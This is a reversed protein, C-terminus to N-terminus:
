RGRHKEKRKTQKLLFQKEKRADCQQKSFTKRQKKNLEILERMADQAHTSPQITKKVREMERRVERQQRKYNVRKIKLEFEQAPGFCLSDFRTLVFEYIEADSPEGGFLYRAVGYGFKDTREFTGVWLNKELFITAKITIM